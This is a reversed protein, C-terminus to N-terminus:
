RWNLRYGYLYGQVREKDEETIEELATLYIDTCLFNDEFRISVKSYLGLMNLAMEVFAHLLGKFTFDKLTKGEESMSEFTRQMVIPRVKCLFDVDGYGVNDNVNLLRYVFEETTTGSM